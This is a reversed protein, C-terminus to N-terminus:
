PYLGLVQQLNKTRRTFSELMQSRLTTKKQLGGYKDTRDRSEDSRMGFWIVSNDASFQKDILWKAFPKQKLQQTCGRAASNPFYGAKKLFPLMGDSITHEITVGYFEEMNKLQAYTDPHDFGTNQHVCVIPAGTKLALSLVVQSDKGGSVPVIITKNM